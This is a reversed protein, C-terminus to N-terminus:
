NMVPFKLQRLAEYLVIAVSNGLNLSRKVQKIMPIRLVHDAKNIVIEPLGNTESGFVLYDDELYNIKDYYEKGRTSFCILRSDKSVKKVSNFNEHVALDLLPWYDLGSRRVEKESLSFGLPKVLHLKTGTLVCTRAINGTNPPIEPEVLVINL